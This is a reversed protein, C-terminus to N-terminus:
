PAPHAAQRAQTCAAVNTKDSGPFCMIALLKDAHFRMWYDAVIDGKTYTWQCAADGEVMIKQIATATADEQKAVTTAIEDCPPSTTPPNNGGKIVITAGDFDERVLIHAGPQKAVLKQMDDDTAESANRWGTPIPLTFGGETITTARTEGWHLKRKSCGAALVTLVLAIQWSRM